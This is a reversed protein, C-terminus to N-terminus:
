GAQNGIKGIFKGAVVLKGDAIRVPLAALQRLAPGNVVHAGDLPNFESNHCPCHLVSRDERWESVPCQAHTCIASYAVIGEAAHARTQEALKDPEFRLLLLQNLRSGDRVTGTKPDKAWAQVQPGGLPIDAPAIEEGLKDGDAYVFLDGEAPRARAAADDALAPNLLGDALPLAVGAGLAAKLLLRRAPSEPGGAARCCGGGPQVPLVGPARTASNEKDSM